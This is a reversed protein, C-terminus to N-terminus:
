ESNKKAMVNKFWDEIKRTAWRTCTSGGKEAVEAVINRGVEGIGDALKKMRCVYFRAGARWMSVIEEAEKTTMEPVYACGSSKDKEQSFAYKVGVMGQEVWEDIEEAHLRDKTESRCGVFLVARALKRGARMQIARQQFFGRFSALGTGACLMLIPMKETDLRLRFTTKASPRVSAQMRTGARLNHLYTGAVGAFIV